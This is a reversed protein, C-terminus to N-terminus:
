NCLSVNPILEERHCHHHPYGKGVKRREKVRAFGVSMRSMKAGIGRDVSVNIVYKPRRSHVNITILHQCHRLLRHGLTTENENRKQNLNTRRTIKQACSM